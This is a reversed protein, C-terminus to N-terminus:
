ENPQERHLLSDNLIRKLHSKWEPSRIREIDLQFADKIMPQLIIPAMINSLITIASFQPNLDNKLIGVQQLKTLLQILTGGLRVPGVRIMDERLRSEQTLIEDQLLRFMWLDATMLSVLGEVILDLAQEPKALIVEALSELVAAREEGADNLLEAFLDEKSGFYYSVMASQTGAREALTRLTISRYSREYLLEKAAQKLAQRTQEQQEPNQPRGRPAM